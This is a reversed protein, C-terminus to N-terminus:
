KRSPVISLWCHMIRDSRSDPLYFVNVCIQTLIIEAHPANTCVRGDRAVSQCLTFWRFWWIVFVSVKEMRTVSSTNRPAMSMRIM